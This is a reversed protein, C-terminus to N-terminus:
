ALTPSPRYTILGDADRTVAAQTITLVSDGREYTLTFADPAGWEANAETCTYTGTRNDPWTIASTNLLQDPETMVWAESIAWALVQTETRDAFAAILDAAEHEEADDPVLIAFSDLSAISIRYAGPQVWMSWEGTIGTRGTVVSRSVMRGDVLFTPHEIPHCQIEALALPSEDALIATGHILPM